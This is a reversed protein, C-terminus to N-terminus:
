LRLPAIVATDLTPGGQLPFWFDAERVWRLNNKRLLSRSEEFKADRVLRLAKEALVLQSPPEPEGEIDTADIEEVLDAFLMLAEDSEHYYRMADALDIRIWLLERNNKDRSAGSAFQLLELFENKATTYNGNDLAVLNRIHILQCRREFDEDFVISSQVTGLLELCRSGDEQDRYLMALQMAADLTSNSDITWLTEQTGWSTLLNDEAEDFTGLKRQVAGLATKLTLVLLDKDSAFESATELAIRYSEAAHHLENVRELRQGELLLLVNFFRYKIGRRRRVQDLTDLIITQAKEYKGLAILAFGILWATYDLDDENAVKKQLQFVAEIEDLLEPFRKKWTYEQLLSVRQRLLFANGEPLIASLGAVVIKKQEYAREYDRTDRGTANFYHGLRIRPLFRLLRDTDDNLKLSLLIHATEFYHKLDVEEQDSSDLLQVWKSLSTYLNIQTAFGTQPKLDIVNESWTVFEIGKLFRGVKLVLDKPPHRVAIVHEQFYLAAYNYIPSTRLDDSKSESNENLNLHRRLSEAPKKADRYKSQSLVALCQRALYLNSCDEEGDVRSIIFDKASTHSFTVCSSESCYVFPYCLEEIERRIDFSCSEENGSEINDNLALFEDIQECSLDMRAAILLLFIHKRRDLKQSSYSMKQTSAEWLQKYLDDAYSSGIDNLIKRMEKPTTQHQQLLDILLKAHLFNNECRQVVTHIVYQKLDAYRPANLGLRTHIEHEVFKVVDCQLPESYCKLDLVEYDCSSMFSTHKSTAMIAITSRKALSNLLSILLPRQHEQCEDLADILLFYAPCANTLDEVIEVLECFTCDWISSYKTYRQKFLDFRTEAPTNHVSLYIQVVISALFNEPTNRAAGGSSNFFYSLLKM